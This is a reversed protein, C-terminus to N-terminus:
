NNFFRRVHTEPEGYLEIAEREWGETHAPTAWERRRDHRQQVVMKKRLINYMKASEESLSKSAERLAIPNLNVLNAEFFKPLFNADEKGAEKLVRGLLSQVPKELAHIVYQGTETIEEFKREPVLLLSTWLAVKQDWVSPSKALEYLLERRTPLDEVIWKGVMQRSAFDVLNYNTLHTTTVDVLRNAIDKRVTAAMKADKSSTPAKRVVEGARDFRHQLMILGLYRQEKYPLELLAFADDVTFADAQRIDNALHMVDAYRVGLFKEIRGLFGPIGKLFHRAMTKAAAPDEMGYLNELAVRVSRHITPPLLAELEKVLLGKRLSVPPVGSAVALLLTLAVLFKIVSLNSMPLTLAVVRLLYVFAHSTM